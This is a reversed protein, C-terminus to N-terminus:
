WARAGLEVSIVYVLTGMSKLDKILLPWADAPNSADIAKTFVGHKGPGERIKIVFEFRSAAPKSLAAGVKMTNRTRAHFSSTM